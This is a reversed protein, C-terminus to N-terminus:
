LLPGEGFLISITHYLSTGQIAIHKTLAKLQKNNLKSLIPKLQLVETEINKMQQQLHIVKRLFEESNFSTRLADLRERIEELTLKEKKFVEILKLRELSEESYYRYNSESREAELLGLKTYYDITRKSVQAFKAMEGIRYLEGLSDGRKEM